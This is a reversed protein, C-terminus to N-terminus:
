GSPRDLDTLSSRLSDLQAQGADLGGAEIAQIVAGLADRARAVEDQTM